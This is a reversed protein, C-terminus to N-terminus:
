ILEVLNFRGFSKQKREYSAVATLTALYEFVRGVVREVPVPDAPFVRPKRAVLAGVLRMPFSVHDLVHNSDM